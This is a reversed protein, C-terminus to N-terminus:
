ASLGADQVKSAAQDSQIPAPGDTGLATITPTHRPLWRAWAPFWRMLHFILYSRVRRIRDFRSAPTPAVERCSNDMLHTLREHLHANFTRDQIVVNAELNLSLSLPDLNSSGVTAWEDDVLAVKGHLPRECYEYIRVGARLLHDYLLSAATRAIPMDPRGQLILRVDVGRLAARRM